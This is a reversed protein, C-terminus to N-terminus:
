VKRGRFTVMWSVRVTGYAYEGNPNEVNWGVVVLAPPLGNTTSNPGTNTSAWGSKSTRALAKGSRYVTKSGNPDLTRFTPHVFRTAYPHVQYTSVIPSVEDMVNFNKCLNTPAIGPNDIATVKDADIPTIEIRCGTVAYEAYVEKQNQFLITQDVSMVTANDVNGYHGSLQYRSILLQNNGGSNPYNQMAYERHVCVTNLYSMTSSPAITLMSANSRRRYRSYRDQYRAKKYPAGGDKWPLGRKRSIAPRSQARYAFHNLM